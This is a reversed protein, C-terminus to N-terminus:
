ESLFNTLVISDGKISITKIKLEEVTLKLIVIEKMHPYYGPLIFDDLEGFLPGVSLKTENEFLEWIITKSPTKTPFAGGYRAEDTEDTPNFKTTYFKMEFNGFRERVTDMYDQGNLSLQTLVWTKGVLRDLPTIKSRQGDEPYEHQWRKCAALSIVIFVFLSLRNM